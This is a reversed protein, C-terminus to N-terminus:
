RNYYVFYFRDGSRKFKLDERLAGDRSRVCVRNEEEFIEFTLESLDRNAYVDRGRDLVFRPPYGTAAGRSIRQLAGLDADIMAKAFSRAAGALTANSGDVCDPSEPLQLQQLNASM